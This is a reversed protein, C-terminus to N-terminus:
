EEKNPPRFKLGFITVFSIGILIILGMSRMYELPPYRGWLRPVRPDIGMAQKNDAYAEQNRGMEWYIKARTRYADSMAIPDGWIEVARSVDLVANQFDGNLRYAEARYSYASTLNADIEIARTFYDIAAPYIGSKLYGMGVMRFAEAKAPSLEIYTQFDQVVKDYKGIFYYLWGRKEYADAFQPQL